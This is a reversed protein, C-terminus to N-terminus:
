SDEIDVEYKRVKVINPVHVVSPEYVYSDWNCTLTNAKGEGMRSRSSSSDNFSFSIGDGEEAVIYGKKTAQKIRVEGDVVDVLENPIKVVKPDKYDRALLTPVKDDKRWNSEFERSGPSYSVMIKRDSNDGIKANNNLLRERREKSFMYKEDVEHQLIDKLLIGKDKPQSVNPINTRYLRRRNQASVLGSNIEIPQVWLESSIIDVREKKMKVNELLFYKPKIEKVLRVFEFFLKSRPDNFNLMKGAVSFGQCPSGGIILDIDKFDEGKINCVDGIQIIGPHNKQAIEIAYKDIESAYYVDIPIWARLLAEYWCAIGDFLSLVKM